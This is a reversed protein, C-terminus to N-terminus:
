GETDEAPRVARVRAVKHTGDCFPKSGLLWVPVAGGARTVDIVTGDARLLVFDGRVILPGDEYETITVPGVRRRDGM